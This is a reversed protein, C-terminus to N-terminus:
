AEVAQKLLNTEEETWEHMGQISDNVVTVVFTSGKGNQNENEVNVSSTVSTDQHNFSLFFIRDFKEKDLLV